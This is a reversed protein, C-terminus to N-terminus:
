LLHVPNITQPSTVQSRSCSLKVRNKGQQIVSTLHLCANHAKEPDDFGTCKYSWPPAKSLFYDTMMFTSFWPVNPYLTAM